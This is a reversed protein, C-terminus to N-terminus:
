RHKPNPHVVAKAKPPVPKTAVRRATSFVKAPASGDKLVSGQDTVTTAAAAPAASALAVEAGAAPPVLSRNYNKALILLDNFNVVGDGNFDGQSRTAGAKNYNRALALLDNFNVVGNGDADGGLVTFQAVYSTALANNSADVASGAPLMAEYAGDPLAGGGTYAFWVANGQQAYSVQLSSAPIQVGTTLNTLRLATVPVSTGVFESFVFRVNMQGVGAGLGGAFVVPAQVDHLGFSLEVSPGAGLGFSRGAGGAPLTQAWGDAPVLRVAYSGVALPPLLFQGNDDTTASPEGADPSGNEILDASVVIGAAGVEGPVRAGDNSTDSFVTGGVGGTPLNRSNIMVSADDSMSNAAVLDALGDGNFDAWAVSV